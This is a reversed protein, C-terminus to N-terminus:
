TGFHFIMVQSDGRVPQRLAFEARAALKTGKKGRM